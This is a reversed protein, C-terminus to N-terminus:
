KIFNKKFHFENDNYILRSYEFHLIIKKEFFLIADKSIAISMVNAFLYRSIYDIKTQIFQTKRKSIFIFLKLFNTKLLNFFQM